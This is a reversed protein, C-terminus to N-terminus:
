RQMAAILGAKNAKVYERLASDIRAQGGKGTAKFYSVVDSSLRIAVSQKTPSKQPGRRRLITANALDEDTKFYNDQDEIAMRDAEDETVAHVRQWDTKSKGQNRMHSLEEPTCRVTKEKIFEGKKVALQVFPFSVTAKGRKAYILSLPMPVGEIEAIDM